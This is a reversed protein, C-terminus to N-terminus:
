QTKQSLQKLSMLEGNKLLEDGPAYYHGLLIGNQMILVSKYYAKDKYMYAFYATQGSIRGVINYAGITGTVRDGAQNMTAVGWDVSEWVGTVNITPSQTPQAVLWKEADFCGSLFFMMAALCVIVSSKWRKVSM